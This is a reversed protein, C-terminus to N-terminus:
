STPQETAAIKLISAMVSDGAVGFLWAEIILEDQTKDRYVHQKLLQGRDWHYQHKLLWVAAWRSVPGRWPARNNFRDIRNWLWRNHKMM